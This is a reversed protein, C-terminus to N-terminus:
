KKKIEQYIKQYIGLDRSSFCVYTIEDFYASNKLGEDIAIKAAEEAPYGYVGTSISPFAISKFGKEAALRFSNSYSDRLLKEEGKKGGRWVPGPTHIIGKANLEGAATLVAEGTRCGGIKRCEDMVSSGAARHIAGDVGGGGSLGTNAANVIVDVRERTIDGQKIIIRAM